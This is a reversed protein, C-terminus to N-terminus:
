VTPTRPTLWAPAWVRAWLGFVAVRKPSSWVVASQLQAKSQHESVRLFNHASDLEILLLYNMWCSCYGSACALFIYGYAGACCLCVTATFEVHVTFLEHIHVRCFCLYVVCTYELWLDHLMCPLCKSHVGRFCSEIHLCPWTTSILENETNIICIASLGYRNFSIWVIANYERGHSRM